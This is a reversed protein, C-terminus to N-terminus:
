GAALYLIGLIWRAWLAAVTTVGVGALRASTQWVVSILRLPDPALGRGAKYLKFIYYHYFSFVLVMLLLSVNLNMTCIMADTAVAM